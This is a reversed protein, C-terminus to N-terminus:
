PGDDKFTRSSTSSPMLTTGSQPLVTPAKRRTHSRPTSRKAFFGRTAASDPASGCSRRLAASEHKKVVGCRTSSCSAFRKRSTGRDYRKSVSSTVDLLLVIRLPQRNVTLSSVPVERGATRVEFDAAQLEPAAGFHTLDVGVDITIRAGEATTGASEPAQAPLPQTLAFLVPAAITLLALRPTM